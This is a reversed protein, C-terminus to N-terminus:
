GNALASQLVEAIEGNSRRRRSYGTFAVASAEVLGDVVQLGYASLTEVAKLSARELICGKCRKSDILVFVHVELRELAKLLGPHLWSICPVPHVILRAPSAEVAKEDLVDLQRRCVFVIGDLANAEVFKYTYAVAAPGSWAPPSGCAVACLMCGRCRGRDVGQEGLANYPCASGCHGEVREPQIAFFPQVLFLSKLLQRRTVTPYVKRARRRERLTLTMLGLHYSIISELSLGALMSEVVTAAEVLYPNRGLSELEDLLEPFGRFGPAVLLAGRGEAVIPAVLDAVYATDALSAEVRRSCLSSDLGSLCIVEVSEAAEVGM